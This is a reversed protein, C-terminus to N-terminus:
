AARAQEDSLHELKRLALRNLVTTNLLNTAKMMADFAEDWEASPKACDALTLAEADREQRWFVCRVRWDEHRAPHNSFTVPGRRARWERVIDGPSPQSTHHPM